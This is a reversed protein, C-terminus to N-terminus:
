LLEVQSSSQLYFYRLVLIFFNDSCAFEEKSSTIFVVTNKVLISSKAAM